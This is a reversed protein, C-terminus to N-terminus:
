KHKKKWEDMNIINKPLEEKNIVREKKNLLRQYRDEVSKKAKEEPNIGEEFFGKEQLDIYNKSIQEIQKEKLSEGNIVINPNHIIYTNSFKHYELENNENVKMFSFKPNIYSAALRVEDDPVIKGKNFNVDYDYRYDDTYESKIVLITNPDKLVKEIYNKRFFGNKDTKLQIGKAQKKKPKIKLDSSNDKIAKEMDFNDYYKADHKFEQFFHSNRDLKNERVLHAITNYFQHDGEKYLNRVEKYYDYAMKLEDTTLFDRLTKGTKPDTFDGVNYITDMIPTLDKIAEEKKENIVDAKQMAEEISNAEFHYEDGERVFENKQKVYLHNGM